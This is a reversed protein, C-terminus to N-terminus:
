EVRERNRDSEGPMAGDPKGFRYQRWVTRRASPIEDLTPATWPGSEAVLRPSGVRYRVRVFRVEEVGPGAPHRSEFRNKVFWAASRLVAPRNRDGGGQAMMRHLRNGAGFPRMGGLMELPVEVWEEEGVQRVEYFYDDWADSRGPFLCAIRWMYNLYRGAEPVSRDTLGVYTIPILWVFLFVVGPVLRFFTPLDTRLTSRM